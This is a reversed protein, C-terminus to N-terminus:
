NIINESRKKLEKEELNIVLFISIIFYINFLLLILKGTILFSFISILIYSIYAPHTFTKYPGSKIIKLQINSQEITSLLFYERPGLTIISWFILLLSSFITINSLIILWQPLSFLVTSIKLILLTIFGNLIWILIVILYFLKINKKWFKLFSHLLFHFIPIPGLILITLFSIIDM